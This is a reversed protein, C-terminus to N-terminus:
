RTLSGAGGSGRKRRGGVKGSAGRSGSSDERGVGEVPGKTWGESLAASPREVLAVVPGKMWGKLLATTPGEELVMVPRELVLALGELCNKCTGLSLLGKM